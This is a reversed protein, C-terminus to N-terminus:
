SFAGDQELARYLYTSQWLDRNFLKGLTAVQQRYTARAFARTISVGREADDVILLFEDISPFLAFAASMTVYLRSLYTALLTAQFLFLYEINAEQYLETWEQPFRVRGTQKLLSSFLELHEESYKARFDVRWSLRAHDGAARHITSDAVLLNLMVHQDRVAEPVNSKLSVRRFSVDTKDAIIIALTAPRLLKFAAHMSAFEVEHFAIIEAADLFREFADTGAAIGGFLQWALYVGYLGHLRRSILNGVDHLLGGAVLERDGLRRQDIPDLRRILGLASRTVIAVHRKGHANFGTPTEGDLAVQQLDLMFGVHDVLYAFIDDADLALLAALDISPRLRSDAMVLRDIDHPDVGNRALFSRLPEGTDARRLVHGNAEQEDVYALFREPFTLHPHRRLLASLVDKM